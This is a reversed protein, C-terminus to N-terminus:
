SSGALIAFNTAGALIVPSQTTTQTPIVIPTSTGSSPAPAPTEKKCGSMLVVTAIAFAAFLNTTKM